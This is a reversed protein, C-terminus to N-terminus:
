IKKFSNLYSESATNVVLTNLTNEDYISKSIQKQIVNEHSSM